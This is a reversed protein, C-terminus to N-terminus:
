KGFRETIDYVYKMSQWNAQFPTRNILDIVVDETEAGVDVTLTGSKIPVQNNFVTPDGLIRGTSTTITTERSHTTIDVDYEVSDTHSVVVKKILLKDYLIVQGTRPDHAYFQTARRKAVPIMGFHFKLDPVNSSVLVQTDSLWEHPVTRGRQSVNLIDLRELCVFGERKSHPVAYPLTLLYTGPQEPQYVARDESVRHDLRLVLPEWRESGHRDLTVEEVTLGNPWKLLVTMTSGLISAWLVQSAAPFTWKNWSSQIREEGNNYWQYLYITNPSGSTIVATKGSAESPALYKIDGELLRPCHANIQIEGSARGQRFYVESVRGWHGVTTSFLLAQLGFAKPEVAGDFEYNSLPLVEATDQRIPDQGSELYTQNLDGWFQLKGGAVVAHKFGTTAGNSADYDIPDTDLVTQVTDPFYVYANRSRSLVVNSETIVGLRGAIFPTAILRHGVFSPDKATDFGDGALRKGWTAEKVEFTNLGTNVLIHPMTSAKLSVATNPAVVEEWVGTSGRSNYKLYYAGETFNGTRGTVSVVYGDLCTRPLDSVDRVTERFSLLQQDGAGDSTKIEFPTNDARSILLVNGDDETSGILRVEFGAPLNGSRYTGGGHDGNMNTDGSGRIVNRLVKAIHTTQIFYGNGSGENSPTSANYVYTVGEYKISLTYTTKYAGARVHACSLNARPPSKTGDMEVIRERNTLFTTDGLVSTYFSKRAVGRHTLYASIDGTVSARIGSTLNYIALVGDESLVLYREDRDRRIEHIFPDKLITNIHFKFVSGTRCTVGDLVENLCNEQDGASASGRANASQQSIGQILSPVNETSIAM